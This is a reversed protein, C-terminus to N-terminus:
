VQGYVISKSANLYSNKSGLNSMKTQKVRKNITKALFNYSTITSQIKITEKLIM